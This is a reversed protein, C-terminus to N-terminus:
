TARAISALMDIRGLFQRMPFSQRYMTGFQVAVEMHHEPDSMVNTCRDPLQGPRFDYFLSEFRALDPETDQLYASSLFATGNAIARRPRDHLVKAPCVDIVGFRSYYLEQSDAMNKGPYFTHRSPASRAYRDWGRGFIHIPFEKLSTLVNVSKVSRIYSDLHSHFQHYAPYNAPITLWDIDNEALFEDISDHIDVYSNQVIRSKLMEAAAMYISFISSPLHQEWDRETDLPNSTNKALVFWDGTRERLPPEQFLQPIDIVTAGRFRRFHRNSYRAFGADTYLHFAYKSELEHNLPMHCPHDSHICILPIKLRDWLSEGANGIPAHSGLGQRCIAFEVSPAYQAVKAGWDSDTIEILEVNKGYAIFHRRLLGTSVSFPDNEGIRWNLILVMMGRVRPPQTVISEKPMVGTRVDRDQSPEAPPRRFLSPLDERLLRLLISM